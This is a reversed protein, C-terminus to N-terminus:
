GTPAVSAQISASQPCAAAQVLRSWARQAPPPGPQDDGTVSNILAVVQRRGGPTSLAVSDYGAFAGDHGWLPGCPTETRFLGLGLSVSPGFPHTQEM